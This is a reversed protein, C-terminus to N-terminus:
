LAKVLFGQDQPKSSTRVGATHIIYLTYRLAPTVFPLCIASLAVAVGGIGAAVINLSFFILM